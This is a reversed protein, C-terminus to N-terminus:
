ASLQTIKSDGEVRLSHISIRFYWTMTRTWGHRGGCPPLPNFDQRLDDAIWCRYTERWVSPTSQFKRRLQTLIGTREDGEVRLSHISIAIWIPPNRRSSRRGGCPPLPNFNKGGTRLRTAGSTERWVSPTSQFKKSRFGFNHFSRDGEVRLSHISISKKLEIFFFIYTERWVSPTSQFLMWLAYYCALATERWVSPTSQFVITKTDSLTSSM